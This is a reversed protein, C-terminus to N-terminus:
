GKAARRRKVSPEMVTGEPLTVLHTSEPTEISLLRLDTDYALTLKNTAVTKSEGTPRGCGRPIYRPWTVSVLEVIM